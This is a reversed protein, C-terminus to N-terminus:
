YFCYFYTHQMYVCLTFSFATYKVLALCCCLVELCVLLVDHFRICLSYFLATCQQLIRLEQSNIYSTWLSVASYHLRLHKLSVLSVSVGQFRCDDRQFCHYHRKLLAEPHGLTLSSLVGFSEGTSVVPSWDCYLSFCFGSLM